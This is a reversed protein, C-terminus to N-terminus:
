QQEKELQKFYEEVEKKYYPMLQVPVTKIQDVEKQKEKLYEEFAKPRIKDYPKATEGKREEDEERERMSKESELLRTLIEKQRRILQDTLKKNVLDSESLEMKQLLDKGAKGGEKDGGEQNGYKELMKQLEQRIMEQEMSLKSLEESLERGSKGSQKLQEIKQNLEEQMQGLDPSPMQQDGQQPMGMAQAMQDQMQSVVDDLLLALNNMSTMAFQQSSLARGRNRDKLADVAAEQHRKMEEIEKTVFSQIQFVREGLARLSDEIIKTDDQIKLQDQSLTVFRPDSQNVVRFEKILNEQSFSARLLNSLIRRINDIDEMMGEMQMEMKMSQMKQAMEQMKESSKKQEQSGGKKDKQELKEKTKQLQNDLDIEDSKTQQMKEPRKMEQNLKDLEELSKKLEEFKEQIDEQKEQMQELDSDRKNTEEALQEQEESLKELDKSIENLKSEFKLRKFLEKTRELEKELNQEKRNLKKVLDEVRDKNKNEELLKKLEEYLAKTEEDMLDNILQQLQEQKDLLKEDQKEQKRNKEILEENQSKLEELLEELKQKEELVEALMKEDQWNIDRKGKLKNELEKLRETLEKSQALSQSMKEETKNESIRIDKRLNEESPRKWSYVATRSGKAGNVQDNDKVELYFNVQKINSVKELDSINWELFYRQSLSEKKISIPVKGANKDGNEKEMTYHLNLSSFGYDDNINGTIFLMEFYTSDSIIELDIEPYKDPIVELRYLITSKNVAEKNSLKIEYESSKKAKHSLRFKQAEYSEFAKEISDTLWLISANETFRSRIQWSIDTGEPVIINGSNRIIEANLGTYKPYVMELYFDELIPRNIVEIFYKRSNFGSGSLYFSTNQLLNDFRINYKKEIDALLLQTRGSHHLIVENPISSGSIEFKIELNEGRYVQFKDQPLNFKFPAPAEFVENYNSLRYWGDTLITRQTFHLIGILAFLGFLIWGKQVIPKKDILSNYDISKVLEYKQSAAALVIFQEKQKRLQVINLLKDEIQDFAKGIMQAASEDSLYKDKRWWQYIPKFFYIFSSFGITAALFIWLSKKTFPEFYNFYELLITATVLLTSVLVFYLLGEAIKIAFYKSKFDNIRKGVEEFM